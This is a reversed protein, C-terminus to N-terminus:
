SGIRAAHCYPKPRAMAKVLSAVARQAAAELDETLGEALADIRELDVYRMERLTVPHGQHARLAALQRVWEDASAPMEGRVRRVLSTIEAAAKEVAEAAQATLTQVAEFEELM